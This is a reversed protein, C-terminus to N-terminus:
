GEVLIYTDVRNDEESSSWIKCNQKSVMDLLPAPVFPTILFYIGGKKMEKLQALVQNVPMEGAEIMQRADLTKEPKAEKVWDPAETESAADMNQEREDSEQQGVEKRLSNVLQAVPIGGIQAVQRLNAVKAVTKRLIPNKLKKYSPSMSILLEELQPYHDLLAGVKTEPTIFLPTTETM